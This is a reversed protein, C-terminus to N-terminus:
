YRGRVAGAVFGCADTNHGTQRSHENSAHSAETFTTGSFRWGCGGTRCVACGHETFPPMPNGCLGCLATMASSRHGHDADTPEPM